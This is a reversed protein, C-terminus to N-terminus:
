FKVKVPKREEEEIKLYPLEKRGYLNAFFNGPFTSRLNDYELISDNYFQRAYAIKNEISSLEEQLSKFNESARLQPYQEGIAIISKLAEQLQNGAKVKDNLSKASLLAKRANTVESIVEKEHKAYGKVTEILNPVLDARKKLQVDIQAASNEIRNVLIAFRNYYSIFMIIVLVVLVILVWFIWLM